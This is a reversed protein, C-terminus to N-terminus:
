YSGQPPEIAIEPVCSCSDLDETFPGDCEVDCICDCSDFDFTFPSDCDSLNPCGLHISMNAHIPKAMYSYLHDDSCSPSLPLHVYKSVYKIAQLAISLIPMLPLFISFLSSNVKVHFKFHRM